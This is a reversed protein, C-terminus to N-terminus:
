RAEAALDRLAVVTAWNRSTASTGLMKATVRLALKSDAIGDPHWTYIEHGAHVVHESALASAELAPIADPAPPGGLFTVQYLKPTAAVDGLPNRKVIADLQAATRVVVPITLGFADTIAQEVGERVKEAGGTTQLVINGSALHTRVETFGAAEVAERLAAMPIRNAKGVNIGRLLAVYVAMWM